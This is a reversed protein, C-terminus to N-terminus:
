FRDLYKIKIYSFVDKILLPYTDIYKYKSNLVFFDDIIKKKEEVTFKIKPLFNLSYNKWEIDIFDNLWDNLKKIKETVILLKRINYVHYSSSSCKVSGHSSLVIGDISYGDAPTRSLLNRSVFRKIVRDKQFIWFKFTSAKIYKLDELSIYIFQNTGIKYYPIDIINNQKIQLSTDINIGVCEYFINDNKPLNTDYQEMYLPISFINSDDDILFAIRRDYNDDQDLNFFDNFDYENGDILDSIKKNGDNIIDLEDITALEVNNGGYLKFYKCNIYKIKYKLYKEKYNM